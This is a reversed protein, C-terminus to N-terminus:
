VGQLKPNGEAAASRDEPVQVDIEQGAHHNRIKVTHMPADVSSRGEGTGAGVAAGKHV